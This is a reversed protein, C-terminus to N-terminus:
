QFCAQAAMTRAINLLGVMDLTLDDVQGGDPVSPMSPNSTLM